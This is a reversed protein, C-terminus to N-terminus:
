VVGKQVFCNFSAIARNNRPRATMKRSSATAVSAKRSAEDQAGPTRPTAPSGARSLIRLRPRLNKPVCQRVATTPQPPKVARFFKLNKSIDPCFFKLFFFGLLDVVLLLIVRKASSGM